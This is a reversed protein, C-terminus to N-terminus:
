AAYRNFRGITMNIFDPVTYGQATASLRIVFRETVAAMDLSSVRLPTRVPVTEGGRALVKCIMDIFLYALSAFFKLIRGPGGRGLSSEGDKYFGM